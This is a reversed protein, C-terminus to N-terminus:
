RPSPRGPAALADIDKKTWDWIEVEFGLTTSAGSGSWSRCTWSSWRPPSRWGTPAAPTSQGTVAVEAIAGPSRNAGVRRRGARDGARRPRGRRHGPGADRGSPRSSRRWSPSTPTPAATGPRQPPTSWGVPPAPSCWAPAGATAWPPWAAPASCRAASTTATRPRSAPRRRRRGRRQRLAGVVVATDLLGRDRWDPEVLADATAYM